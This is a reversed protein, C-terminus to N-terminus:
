KGKGKGVKKAAPAAAGAEIKNPTPMPANTEKRWANLRELLEKAKDPNTTALNKTESLDDKLNYLELHGDELYEM